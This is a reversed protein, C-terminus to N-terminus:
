YLPYEQGGAAVVITRGGDELFRPRSITMDNGDLYLLFLFFNCNKKFQVQVPCFIGLSQHDEPMAAVKSSSPQLTTSFGTCDSFSRVHKTRRSLSLTPAIPASDLGSLQVKSPQDKEEEQAAPCSHCRNEGDASASIETKPPDAIVKPRCGASGIAAVSVESDGEESMTM